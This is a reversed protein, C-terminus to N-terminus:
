EGFHGDFDHRPKGTPFEFLKLHSGYVRLFTRGDPSVRDIWGREPLQPLAKGSTIDWRTVNGSRGYAILENGGPLFRARMIWPEDTELSRILKVTAPDYIELLGGVGFMRGYVALAKGDPSLEADLNHWDRNSIVHKSEGSELDGIHAKRDGSSVSIVARNDPAVFIRQIRDDHCQMRKREKGTAVDYVRVSGDLQGGTVLTKANPSFALSQVRESTLTHLLTRGDVDWLAAGKYGGVAVKKGDRSLAACQQYEEGQQTPLMQLLKGTAADWFRLKGDSTASLITNGDPLFDAMPAYAGGHRFRITGLRAVAGAPLPDGYRDTRPEDSLAPASAWLAALVGLTRITAM